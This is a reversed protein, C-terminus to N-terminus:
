KNRAELMADALLYADNAAGAFSDLECLGCLYQGAFWDRLSMGYNFVSVPESSESIKDWTEFSIPFAPGGDDKNM